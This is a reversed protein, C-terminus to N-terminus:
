RGDLACQRVYELSRRIDQTDGFRCTANEFSDGTDADRWEISVHFGTRDGYAFVEVSIETGGPAGFRCRVRGSPSLANVEEMMEDLTKM